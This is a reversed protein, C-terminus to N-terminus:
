VVRRSACITCRNPSDFKPGRQQHAVHKAAELPRASWARAAAVREESSSHVVEGAKKLVPARSWAIATRQDVQEVTALVVAPVLVAAVSVGRRCAVPRRRKTEPHKEVAGRARGEELKHLHGAETLCNSLHILHRASKGAAGSLKLGDVRTESFPTAQSVSAAKERPGSRGNRDADLACHEPGVTKGTV